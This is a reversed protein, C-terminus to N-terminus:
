RETGDGVEVGGAEEHLGDLAVFGVVTRQDSAPQSGKPQSNRQTQQRVGNGERGGCAKRLRAFVQGRM